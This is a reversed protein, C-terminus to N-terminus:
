KEMGYSDIKVQNTKCIEAYAFASPRIKREFTQRDVEVLGFKMGFGDAWEFNDLLSWHFYGRVDVGESIAKHVYKLHDIIFDKRYKDVADAVGNEVVYIPKKFKSYNKLIHYIGEPYIEWGFDSVKKNLNKKFPPYWVIRIHHYYDVGIFDFKGKLGRFFIDNRVYNAIKCISVEIPNWKNAPEYCGTLLTAGIQTQPYKNHIIKYCESQAKSLNKYIKASRFLDWKRNPPFKGDIYGHAIHLLPENLIIWFDVYEGLEEVVIAVYKKFHEVTEKNEWLGKNKIWIPVTWHWLTLMIKLNRDKLAKFVKRYHEIENYDITGEEPMIRSWEIGLRHANNNLKVVIDFDEEYRNYSDCGQGCIYDAPNKGAKKLTEIRKPSNEWESWDNVNGGEIQYASTSAGWLFDKPFKLIKENNSDM